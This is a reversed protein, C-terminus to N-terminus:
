FLLDYDTMIWGFLLIEKYYGLFLISCMEVMLTTPNQLTEM